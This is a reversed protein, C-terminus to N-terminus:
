RIGRWVAAGVRRSPMRPAKLGVQSAWFQWARRSLVDAGRGQLFAALARRPYTRLVWRAAQRDGFELLRALIFDRHHTVSLSSLQADWFFARLRGPVQDDAFRDVEAKAVLWQGLIRACPQLRQMRLYRYVQRRSKRLTRCVEGVTLVPSIATARRSGHGRITLRRLAQGTGALVWQGENM